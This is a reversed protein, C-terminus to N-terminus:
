QFLGEQGNSRAARESDLLVEYQDLLVPEVDYRTVNMGACIDAITVCYGWTDNLQDYRAQQREPYAHIRPQMRGNIEVHGYLWARLAKLRLWYVEGDRLFHYLLIDAGQTWLWGPRGRSKNSFTELFFNGHRNSYECKHEVAWATEDDSNMFYDGLTSQIEHAHPGKEVRVFRGDYVVAKMHVRELHERSVSELERCKKFANM